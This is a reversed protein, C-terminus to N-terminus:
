SVKTEGTALLMGGFTSLNLTELTIGVKVGAVDLSYGLPEGFPVTCSLGKVGDKIQSEMQSAIFEGAAYVTAVGAGGGLLTGAAGAFFGLIAGSIAGAVITGPSPEAKISLDGIGEMTVTLGSANAQIGIDVKPTSPSISVDYTIFGM